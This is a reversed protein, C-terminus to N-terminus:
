RQAQTVPVALQDLFYVLSQITYFVAREADTLIALFLDANGAELARGIVVKHM